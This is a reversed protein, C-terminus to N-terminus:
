GTQGPAAPHGPVLAPALVERIAINARENRRIARRDKPGPVVQAPSLSWEGGVDAGVIRRHGALAQLWSLLEALTLDGADWTTAGDDPALVDKDISIYIDATPIARDAWEGFPAPPGPETVRLIRPHPLYLQLEPRRGGVWVVRWVWPLALAHRVWDGCTVVGPQTPAADHHHDFLLLTVPQQLARLRLLTIYHYEGAGWYCLPIHQCPRLAAALASLTEPAACAKKGTLHRLDVREHPAALLEPQWSLTDDLDLVLFPSDVM